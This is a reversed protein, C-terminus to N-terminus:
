WKFKKGRCKRMAHTARFPTCAAAIDEAADDTAAHLVPNADDSNKVKRPTNGSSDLPNDEQDHGCFRDKILQSNGVDNADPIFHGSAADWAVM